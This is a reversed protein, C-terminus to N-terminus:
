SLATTLADMRPVGLGTVLDFGAVAQYAGNSGNAVDRFSQQRLPYILPNLFSLSPKGNRSRMDNILACFAAWIPASWSTGGYQMQKGQLIVLGGEDPDATLSVDPVLRKSGTINPEVQWSPRGFFISKGGEM